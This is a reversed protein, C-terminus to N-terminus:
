FEDDSEKVDPLKDVDLRKLLVIFDSTKLYVRRYRYLARKRVLFSLLSRAEDKDLDCWDQFDEPTINDAYLLSEVLDKAFKMGMLRRVVEDPDRVRDAHVQARSYDLYGFVSSSYVRDLWQCIFEVHCRRVIISHLDDTSFTRAALAASLRAIKHRITGRDILPLSESYKDSFEVAKQLILDQDEFVVSSSDRTWSWLVLRKCLDSLYKHKVKPRAKALQNIMKPDVDNASLVLAADFRRIDELSGMLEKIAEVGFNYASIPRGSRPNSIFILRTRAFARRKEIKPIEAIGSSRMDTLKALIEPDTGKIEELIVLRRDHTPIVGWTVFWRNSGMQQLGGLLGAISANKCEVREGLRYHESLRISTESKGQSSDGIILSNIWGKMNQGDFNFLLPSHFTLDILLHLDRRQFIHTVNAELDEYLDDLQKKLGQLTWSEPQFIRLDSLSEETPDYSSLSDETQEVKDLLLTAQQNRSHPFPKGEFIYPTNMDVQDARCVASFM